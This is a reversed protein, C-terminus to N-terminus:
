NNIKLQKVKILESKIRNITSKKLPNEIAYSNRPTRPNLITWEYPENFGILQTDSVKKWFNIDCGSINDVSFERNSEVSTIIGVHGENM